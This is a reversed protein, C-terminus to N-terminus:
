YKTKLINMTFKREIEKIDFVTKMPLLTWIYEDIVTNGTRSTGSLLAELYGLHHSTIM